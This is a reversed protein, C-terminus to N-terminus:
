EHSLIIDRILVGSEDKLDNVCGSVGTTPTDPTYSTNDNEKFTVSFTM